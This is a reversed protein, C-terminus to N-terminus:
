RPTKEQGPNQGQGPAQGQGPNQSQGPNQGQNQGSSDTSSTLANATNQLGQSAQDVSNNNAQNANDQAAANEVAKAADSIESQSGDAVAKALQHLAASLQPNQRAQNAAQEIQQALQARQAPTMNQVQSALKQLASDLEKSDGRALAQGTNSLNANSSNQLSQSAATRATAKNAAQPDRLQNLKAQAQALIQQAQAENKAQQLQAATERLIKDIQSREHASTKTQSDIVTRIHNIAAVQRALRAQFAAQQRLVDTMPNPLFTLLALGIIVIGFAILGARGPWLSITSIPRHRGLHKLADRRQLKALTSSKDRLEWATSLRDHLALRTDVLRAARAFSPRYWLAAALACLLSAATLTVAWYSATAWPVFRSIILILSALVLGIFMGRGTWRLIQQMWARRRWPHLAEILSKDDAIRQMTEVQRSPAIIAM